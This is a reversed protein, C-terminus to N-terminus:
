YTALLGLEKKPSEPEDVWGEDDSDKIEITTSGIGNDDEGGMLQMADHDSPDSAPPTTVHVDGASGSSSTLSVASHRLGSTTPPCPNNSPMGAIPGTKGEKSSCTLYELKFKEVKGNISWKIKYISSSEREAKDAAKVVVVKYLGHLAAIPKSLTQHIMPHVTRNFIIFVGRFIGERALGSHPYHTLTRTAINLVWVQVGTAGVGTVRAPLGYGHEQRCRNGSHTCNV